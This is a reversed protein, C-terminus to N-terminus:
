PEDPSRIYVVAKHDPSLSPQGCNSGDCRSINLAQGGSVIYVDTWERLGEIGGSSETKVLLEMRDKDYVRKEGRIYALIRRQEDSGDYPPLATLEGSAMSLVAVPATREEQIVLLCDPNTFDFGILQEVSPLRHLVEPKGGKVIPIWVLRDEALALVAKSDPTFVPWRYCGESTIPIPEVQDLYKVWIDGAAIEGEGGKTAPSLSLGLSLLLDKWTLAEVAPAAFVLLMLFVISFLLKIRM